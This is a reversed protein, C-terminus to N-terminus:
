TVSELTERTREGIEEELPECSTLIIFSPLTNRKAVVLFPNRPRLIDKLWSSVKVDHTPKGMYRPSKGDVRAAQLNITRSTYAYQDFLNAKSVSWSVCRGRQETGARPV